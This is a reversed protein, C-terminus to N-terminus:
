QKKVAAAQFLTKAFGELHQMTDGYASYAMRQRLDETLARGGVVLATGNAGCIESLEAFQTVFDIDDRIHSVSLWFVKPRLHQVAKVLSAIPISTGLPITQFGLDRMVLECMATPLSYNDGEITGGIALPTLPPVPQLRRLEILIRQTIECGRREQYVDAQNCAWREGIERFALGILEDFIRSLPHKALYLDFIVQRATLESGDLLAQVLLAVASQLGASGPASHQNIPPLGLLEPDGVSLGRERAFQVIDALRIKRHGGATRTTQILGQDCWRKLSSESVDIARAAQRPSVLESTKEM